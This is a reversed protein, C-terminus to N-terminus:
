RIEDASANVDIPFSPDYVISPLELEGAIHIFADVLYQRFEGVFRARRLVIQAGCQVLEENWPELVDLADRQSIKTDFLIRNRQRLIRRYEILEELYERSSQSIVIDIFRRRDSPTGATVSGNEPSLVVVPFMGIVSSRNDVPSQNIIISKERSEVEYSVAIRYGVDIDSVADGSVAFGKEGLQAVTADSAAYFSKTLCLFSIAELINTKGEGNNGLFVNQREACEIATMAHNRFRELRIERLRM